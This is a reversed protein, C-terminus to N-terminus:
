LYTFAHRRMGAYAHPVPASGPINSLPSPDEMLKPKLFTNIKGRKLLTKRRLPNPPEVM